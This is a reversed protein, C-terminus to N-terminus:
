QLNKVFQSPTKGTFKKFAANFTAKSKFGAEFALALITFNKYEKKSSLIKFEEVRYNNVYDNFSQGILGNLTESITHTPIKSLKSFQALDFESDLYPKSVEMINNLIKVNDEATSRTLKSKEYKRFGGLGIKEEVLHIAKPESIIVYSIAYGLFILFSLNIIDMTKQYGDVFLPLNNKVVLICFHLIMMYVLLRILSTKKKNFKFVRIIFGKTNYFSAITKLIVFPYIIYLSILVSKAVFLLEQKYITSKIFFIFIIGNILIPVIHLISRKTFNIKGYIVSVVYYYVIVPATTAFPIISYALNSSYTIVGRYFLYYYLYHLFINTLVLMLMFNPFTRFKKKLLIFQLGLVQAGCFIILHQIDM